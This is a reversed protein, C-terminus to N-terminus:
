ANTDGTAVEHIRLAGSPCRAVVDRLRAALDETSAEEPDIWPRKATDFVSQMGRVCVGSHQCLEGDYSVNVIPGTYMRRTM